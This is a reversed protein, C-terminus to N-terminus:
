MARTQASMHHVTSRVAVGRAHWAHVIHVLLMCHLWLLTSGHVSCHFATSSSRMWLARCVQWANAYGPREMMLHSEYNNAAARLHETSRRGSLLRARLIARHAPRQQWPAQAFPAGLCWPPQAQICARCGSAHWSTLRAPARRITRTAFAQAHRHVQLLIQPEAENLFRQQFSTASVTHASHQPEQLSHRQGVLLISM